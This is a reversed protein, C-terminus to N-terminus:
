FVYFFLIADGSSKSEKRILTQVFPRQFYIWVSLISEIDAYKENKFRFKLLQKRRLGDNSMMKALIANSM